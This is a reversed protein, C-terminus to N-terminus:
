GSEGVVARYIGTRFANWEDITRIPQAPSERRIEDWHDRVADLTFESPPSQWGEAAMTIVRGMRGSSCAYLDGTASCDDHVLWCAGPAVVEASVNIGPRYDRGEVAGMGDPTAAGPLLANIRINHLAGEVALERVMGAMAAKCTGYGAHNPVGIVNGDTSAVNLVNGGGQRIFHPWAARSVNWTGRVHVAFLKMLAADDLEGFPAFIRNGANNIVSDVRGFEAVAAAVIGAAQDPDAINSSNDLAVGGDARIEAVVSAATDGDDVGGARIDNVLVSAGRGALLRAIERGIGRGAGTVVVVRGDFRVPDM